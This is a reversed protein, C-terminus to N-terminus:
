SVEEDVMVALAALLILGSDDSPSNLEDINLAPFFRINNGFARGEPTRLLRLFMPVFSALVNWPFDMGLTEGGITIELRQRPASL